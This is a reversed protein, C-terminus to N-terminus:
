FRLVPVAIEALKTEYQDIAHMETSPVVQNETRLPNDPDDRHMVYFVGVAIGLYLGVSSGIFISRADRTFPVSALGLVTGGLIGYGGTIIVAKVDRNLARASHPYILLCGAIALVM